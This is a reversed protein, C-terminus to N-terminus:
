KQHKKKHHKKSEKRKPSGPEPPRPAAAAARRRRVSAPSSRAAADDRGYDLGAQCFLLDAFPNGFFGGAAPADDGGAGGGFLSASAGGAQKELDRLVGRLEAVRDSARQREGPSATNELDRRADDPSAAAVVAGPAPPAEGGGDGKAHGLVDFAVRLAASEFRRLARLREGRRGRGRQRLAASSSQKRFSSRAVSIGLAAHAVPRPVLMAHKGAVVRRKSYRCSRLISQMCFRLDVVRPEEAALIYYLVSSRDQDEVLYHLAQARVPRQMYREMRLLAGFYVTREVQSLETMCFDIMGPFEQALKRWFVARSDASYSSTPSDNAVYPKLDAAVAAFREYDGADRRADTAWVHFPLQKFTQGMEQMRLSLELYHEHVAELCFHAGAGTDDVNARHKVAGVSRRRGGRAVSTQRELNFRAGSARAASHGRRRGGASLQLLKSKLFSLKLAERMSSFLAHATSEDSKSLAVHDLVTDIARERLTDEGWAVVSLFVAIAFFVLQCFVVGVVWVTGGLSHAYIFLTTVVFAFVMDITFVDFRDHRKKVYPRAHLSRSGTTSRRARFREYAWGLTDLMEPSHVGNDHLYAMQVRYYIYTPLGLVVGFFYLLSFALYLVRQPNDGDCRVQPDERMYWAGNIEDCRIAHLSNFAITTHQVDLLSLFETVGRAIQPGFEGEYRLSAFVAGFSRYARDTAFKHAVRTTVPVFRLLGLACVLMQTVHSRWPTWTIVCSPKFVDVDFLMFDLFLSYKQIFEVPFDIQYRAIIAMHQVSYVLMGLPAYVNLLVNNVYLWGLVVALISSGTLLWRNRTTQPCKFPLSSSITFYRDAAGRTAAVSELRSCLRGTYGPRCRFKKRCHGPECEYFEHPSAADGWYGKRPYPADLGGLCVGNDPCSACSSGELGGIAFDLASVYTFTGNVVRLDGAVVGAVYAASGNAVLANSSNPAYHFLDDAPAVRPGVSSAVVRLDADVVYFFLGKPDYAGLDERWWTRATAAIIESVRSLGVDAGAAGRLKGEADFLPAAITYGVGAAVDAPMAYPTTWRPTKYKVSSRFWHTTTCDFKTTKLADVPEGLADSTFAVACLDFDFDDCRGRSVYKEADLKGKGKVNKGLTVTLNGAHAARAGSSKYFDERLYAYAYYAHDADFGAYIALVNRERDAGVVGCLVLLPALWRRRAM